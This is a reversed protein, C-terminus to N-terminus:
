QDPRANQSCRARAEQVLGVLAARAESATCAPKAFDIRAANSCHLLDIGGPDIGTMRWAGPAQGALATAYLGIADAHDKNMHSVIDPEAAVLDGAQAIGTLLVGASLDVIRGFGGIFHGKEIKMAFLSFDAFGAYGEASPHRALFRRLATRSETRRVEGVLTLRAGTMPDGLGGTGDILLGARCDQELNRTHLALRSVLFLPTSDPETAVLVLSPYPHGTERDLTALSGKLATRMLRRAVPAPDDPRAWPAAPPNDAPM